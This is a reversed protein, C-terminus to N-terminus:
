ELEEGIIDYSVLSCDSCLPLFESGIKEKIRSMKLKDRQEKPMDEGWKWCFGKECARCELDRLWAGWEPYWFEVEKRTEEFPNQMTGCLCEGSRHLFDYVPNHEFDLLFENREENSWDNIINVWINSNEKRIPKNKAWVRKKSEQWRFGNILWINRGRKGQRIYKSLVKGFPARKLKHYAFQHARDGIGFFGKRLVYDEYTTGADAELYSVGCNPVIKQRVFETTAQVGTGTVGHLLHTIPVNLIKAVHYAVLSDNGGSFMVVVAYPPYEILAQDIIEQSGKLLDDISRNHEGMIKDLVSSFNDSSGM